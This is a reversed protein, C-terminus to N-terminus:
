HKVMEYVWICGGVRLPMNMAVIIDVLVYLGSGVVCFGVCVTIEVLLFGLSYGVGM